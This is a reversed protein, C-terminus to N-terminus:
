RSVKYKSLLDKKTLWELVKPTLLELTTTSYPSSVEKLFKAVGEPLDSTDMQGRLIVLKEKLSILSSVLDSNVDKSTKEADFRAKLTIYKEFIGKKGLNSQRELVAEEEFFDKELNILWQDWYKDNLGSIIKTLSKLAVISNNLSDDQQAEHGLEKWKESLLPLSVKARDLLAKIDDGLVLGSSESILFGDSEDGETSPILQEDLQSILPIVNFKTKNSTLEGLSKNLRNLINSNAEIITENEQANSSLKIQSQLKDVQSKLTSM